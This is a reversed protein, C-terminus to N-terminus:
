QNKYVCAYYNRGLKRSVIGTTNTGAFIDMVICPVVSADCKCTPVWKLPENKNKRKWPSGCASCCGHESSGAKIPDVPLEEPYTAYHDEKTGKNNITWVSKKNARGSGILNGEKDFYGSHGQFGKGNIGYNAEAEARAKRGEHMSHTKGDRKLNKHADAPNGPYTGHYNENQHWNGPLKHRPAVAKMPGNHRKGAHAKHSGNQKSLDQQMRLVSSDTIETSIAYQDFYYVPKKSLMFIYEHAKTCRDGVSEPMPNRKHWIIDQRLYWGDGRLAFALMWPIGALDKQKLTKSNRNIKVTALKTGESIYSHNGHQHAGQYGGSKSNYCDGMNMWLTGDDRLVRRALRFVYVMHGVFYEPTPEHGLQCTMPPVTLEFGFLKYKVEPWDTPEIKYDRVAWYPPSTVIVHVSKERLKPLFELIDCLTLQNLYPDATM